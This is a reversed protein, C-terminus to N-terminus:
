IYIYVNYTYNFRGRGPFGPELGRVGRGPEKNLIGLVLTKPFFINPFLHRLTLVEAAREPFHRDQGHNVLHLDDLGPLLNKYRHAHSLYWAQLSARQKLATASHRQTTKKTANKSRCAFHCLRFNLMEKCLCYREEKITELFIVSPLGNKQQIGSNSM